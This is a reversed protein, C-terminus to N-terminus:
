RGLHLEAKSHLWAAVEPTLSVLRMCPQFRFIHRHVIAGTACVESRRATHCPLAIYADGQQCLGAKGIESGVSGSSLVLSRSLSGMVPRCHDDDALGRTPVGVPICGGARPRPLPRDSGTIAAPDTCQSRQAWAEWPLHRLRRDRTDLRGAAARPFVRANIGVGAQNFPEPWSKLLPLADAVGFPLM